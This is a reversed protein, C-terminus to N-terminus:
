QVPVDVYKDVDEDEDEDEDVDGYVYGHVHTVLTDPLNKNCRSKDKEQIEEKTGGGGV